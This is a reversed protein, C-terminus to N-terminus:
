QQSLFKSMGALREDVIAILKNIINRENDRELKDAEYRAKETNFQQILSAKLAVKADLEAQSNQRDVVTVNYEATYNAIHTTQEAIANVLKVNDAQITAKLINYSNVSEAEKTEDANLSDKSAERLKELLAILKALAEQDARTAMQAFIAAEQKNKTIQLFSTQIAKYADDRVEYENAQVVDPREGNVSGTLTRLQGIVEELANVVANHDQISQTYEASDNIRHKELDSLAKNNDSQQTTYQELNSNGEAILGQLRAEEAVDKAIRVNLEDIRASAADIQNNLNTSQTTWANTDNEQDKNLQYLLDRLLTQVEDINNGNTNQLTLSITEILSNGYSTTKLDRVQPLNVFDFAASYSLTLLVILLIANYSRM